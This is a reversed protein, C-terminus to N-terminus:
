WFKWWRKKGRTNGDTDDLTQIMNRIRREAEKKTIGNHFDVVFPHDVSEHPIIYPRNNSTRTYVDMPINLTSSEYEPLASSLWGFYGTEHHENKFNDVYDKFSKESLSVWLGYDLDECHDNVKQTFTCRIFRDTQDGHRIICFDEDLEAMSAKEEESLSHYYSPSIYTLAPWGEHVQRCSSCTYTTTSKM